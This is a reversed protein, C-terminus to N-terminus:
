SSETSSSENLKARKSPQSESPDLEVEQKESSPLGVKVPDPETITQAPSSSIENTLETELKEPTSSAPHIPDIGYKCQKEFMMQLYRGQEEIRMQLNKQIELQEHLRKQVEVQLRLAETIESSTKLDLSSFDQKPTSKKESPGESSPEPKYRATRYKQLHSKVHYITLGEVKMLKLVGKPTARESGGLMSVAEVFAEHLEPTWRMRPKSQSGCSSPTVPTCAEGPSAPVLPKVQLSLSTGSSKGVHFELKPTQDAVATDVLIENWNPTVGDDETILQDAWDQWDNPKGVDECPMIQLNSSQIPCNEPYDLFDPLSDTCWSSTNNEKMYDRFATSRLVESSQNIFPAKKSCAEESSIHLNSSMGSSSSVIHGVTGNTSSMGSLEVVIFLRKRLNCGCFGGINLLKSTKNFVSISTM